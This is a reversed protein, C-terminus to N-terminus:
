HRAQVAAPRGPAEPPPVPSRTGTTRAAVRVEELTRQAAMPRGRTASHACAIGVELDLWTTWHEELLAEARALDGRESLAQSLGLVAGTNSPSLARATEFSSLARAPQEIDTWAAGFMVWHRAQGAGYRRTADEITQAADESRGNEFQARARDLETALEMALIEDDIWAEGTAERAAEFRPITDATRHLQIASAQLAALAGPHRPDEDLVGGATAWAGDADGEDLMLAAMAVRLELNAPYTELQDELIRRSLEVNGSVAATAAEQIAHERAVREALAINDPHPVRASLAGARRQAADYEGRAALASIIGREAEAFDPDLSLAEEFYAQAAGYQWRSLYLGAMGTYLTPDEQEDLAERYSEYAGMFDGAATLQDAEARRLSMGTRERAEKASPDSPADMHDFLWRARDPQQLAIRANIEGLTLWPDDPDFDRAQGYTEAASEHDGMASLTDALGHLLTIEGPYIVLLPQLTAPSKSADPQVPAGLM